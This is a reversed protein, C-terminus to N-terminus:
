RFNGLKKNVHANYNCIRVPNDGEFKYAKALKILNNSNNFDLITGNSHQVLAPEIPRSYDFEAVTNDNFYEKPVLYLRVTIPAIFM